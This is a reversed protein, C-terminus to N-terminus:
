TADSTPGDASRGRFREIQEAKVAALRETISVHYVHPNVIRRVGPDLREVDDDRRRRAADIDGLEDTARVTSLLEEARSWGAAPLRRTLDSRAHHHLVLDSGSELQEESTSLV